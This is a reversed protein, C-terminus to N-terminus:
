KAIRRFERETSYKNKGCLFYVINVFWSIIDFKWHIPHALFVINQCNEQMGKLPNSKYSFGFNNRINGDMIHYIKGKVYMNKDYAEFLIDYESYEVDELLINSSIDLEINEKAGHSCCSVMESNYNSKFNQIEKKLVSQMESISLDNKDRIQHERIYTAVTEYHLGVEFGSNLMDNILDKDITSWRFYYTAHVGLKKEIEFMKRTAPILDDVDHRLIFHKDVNDRENWYEQLSCIKYGNKKAELIYKKYTSLRNNLLITKAVFFKTNDFNVKKM